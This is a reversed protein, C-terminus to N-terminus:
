KGEAPNTRDTVRRMAEGPNCSPPAGPSLYSVIEDVGVDAALCALAERGDGAPIAGESDLLRILPLQRSWIAAELATASRVTSSIVDPHLPYLVAPDEGARLFGVVLDGRATGAAEAINAPARGAFMTGGTGEAVAIAALYLSVSCLPLALAACILTRRM